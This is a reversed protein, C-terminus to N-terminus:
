WSTPPAELDPVLTWAQEDDGEEGEASFASLDSTDFDLINVALHGRSTKVLDLDQVGIATFSVKGRGIHEEMFPRSLLLPLSGPAECSCMEGHIQSLGIPYVKVVHSM